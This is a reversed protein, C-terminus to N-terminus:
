YFVEGQKYGYCLAAENGELHSKFTKNQNTWLALIWFVVIFEWKPEYIRQEAARQYKARVYEKKAKLPM